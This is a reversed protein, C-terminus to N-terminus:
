NYFPDRLQVNHRNTDWHGYGDQSALASSGNDALIVGYREPELTHSLLRLIAQEDNIVMICPHKKM